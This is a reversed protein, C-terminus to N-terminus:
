WPLPPVVSSKSNGFEISFRYHVRGDSPLPCTHSPYTRCTVSHTNHAKQFFGKESQARMSPHHRSAVCHTESENFKRSEKRM